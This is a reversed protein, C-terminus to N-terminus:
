LAVEVDVPAWGAEAEAQPDAEWEFLGLVPADDSRCNVAAWAITKLYRDLEVPDNPLLKLIVPAFVTLLQLGQASAEDEPKLEGLRGRLKRVKELSNM